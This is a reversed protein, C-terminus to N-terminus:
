RNIDAPSSLLAIHKNADRSNYLEQQTSKLHKSTQVPHLNQQDICLTNETGMKWQEEKQSNFISSRM